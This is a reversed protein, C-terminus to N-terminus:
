VITGHNGAEESVNGPNAQLSCRITVNKELDGKIKEIAFFLISSNGGCSKVSRIVFRM